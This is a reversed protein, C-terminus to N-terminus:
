NDINVKIQHLVCQDALELFSGTETKNLIQIRYNEVTRYNIKLERAIQKSSMGKLAMPLIQRERKTLKDLLCKFQMRSINQNQVREQLKLTEQIKQILVHGSAPKTLFDTAGAKIARVSLPIDGFATLFIIPLKCDRRNLEDQLEPGNLWTLQCGSDRLRSIRSM